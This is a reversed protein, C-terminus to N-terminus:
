AIDGIVRGIIDQDPFKVEFLSPDKSPYIVGNKMVM